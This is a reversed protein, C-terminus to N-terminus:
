PQENDWERLYSAYFARDRNTAGRQQCIAGAFDTARRLALAFPWNRWLGLLLVASFADGAGVTDVVELAHPMIRLAAGETVILAGDAGFTVALMELHHSRRLNDAVNRAEAEPVPGGAVTDFETDNLKLWRAGDVLDFVAPLNWWPARLNLDLFVPLDRGTRLAQLCSRSVAHRAALSGHYLCFGAVNELARLAPAPEIFDYAQRPLIDYRPQAGELTVEVVGTPHLPDSQLGSLDMGWDAMAERVREGLPDAGVRSIFLPDLGFGRLHWAVNFPAGGLVATGDPFRDFLVEGFIVPRRSAGTGTTQIDEVM